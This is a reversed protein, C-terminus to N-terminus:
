DIVLVCSALGLRAHPARVQPLGGGVDLASQPKERAQSGEGRPGRLGENWLRSGGEM